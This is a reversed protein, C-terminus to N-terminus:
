YIKKEIAKIDRGCHPCATARADVWRFCWPCDLRNGKTISITFIGLPGLFLGLVFGILAQGKFSGVYAAVCACAIFGPIIFSFM